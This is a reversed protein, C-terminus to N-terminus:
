VTTKTVAAAAPSATKKEKMQSKDKEIKMELLQQNRERKKQITQIHRKIKKKQRRMGREMLGNEIEDTIKKQSQNLPTRPIRAFVLRFCLLWITVKGISIKEM